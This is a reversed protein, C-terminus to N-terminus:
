GGADALINSSAVHGEAGRPTKLETFGSLLCLEGDFDGHVRCASILLRWVVANPEVPKSKVFKCAEELRGAGAYMDIVCGCHEITLKIHYSKCLGEDFLGVRDCAPLVGTFAVSNPEVKGACVRQFALLAEKDFVVKARTMSGYKAYMDILANSVHETRQDMEAM